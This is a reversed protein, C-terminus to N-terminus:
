KCTQRYFESGWQSITEKRLVFHRTFIWKVLLQEHEFSTPCLTAPQRMIVFTLVTIDTYICYLQLYDLPNTSPRLLNGRIRVLHATSNSWYLLCYLIYWYYIAWTLLSAKQSPLFHAFIWFSIITYIWSPNKRWLTM